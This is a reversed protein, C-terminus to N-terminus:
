ENKEELSAATGTRRAEALASPTGKAAVFIEERARVVTRPPRPAECAGLARSVLASDAVSQVNKWFHM